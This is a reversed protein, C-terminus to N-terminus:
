KTQTESENDFRNKEFNFIAVKLDQEDLSDKQM